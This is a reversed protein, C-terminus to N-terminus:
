RPTSVKPEEPRKEEYITPEQATKKRQEDQWWRRWVEVAEARALEGGAPDFSYDRRTRLRLSKFATARIGYEPDALAEILDGCCDPGGYLVTLRLAPARVEIKPDKLLLRVKSVIIKGVGQKQGWLRLQEEASVAYAPDRQLQQVLTTIAEDPETDEKVPTPKEAKRKSAAAADPDFAAYPAAGETKELAKKASTTTCGSVGLLFAAIGALMARRRVAPMGGALPVPPRSLRRTSM